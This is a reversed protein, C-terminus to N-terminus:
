PVGAVPSRWRDFLAPPQAAMSKQLDEMPTQPERVGGLTPRDIDLILLLSMVMLVLLFGAAVRGRFGTLVYGLVVATVVFYVALVLFVESPVHSSRAARRAGDMDIMSNISSVYTSSFDIGRISDFAPATAQWLETLLQDDRAVLPPTDRPKAKGLVIANDVYRVLINSIRSRHPEGLLQTQLYATGVANASELVRERRTDFRDVALSFTFGLLLAMLGLVASVTYGEQTESRDAATRKDRARRFATGVLAAVVMAVVLMGGIVIVSSNNLWSDFDSM